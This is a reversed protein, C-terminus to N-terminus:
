GTREYFPLKIFSMIIETNVIGVVEFTFLHNETKVKREVLSCLIYM